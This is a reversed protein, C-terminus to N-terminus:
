RFSNSLLYERLNKSYRTSTNMGYGRRLIAEAPNVCLNPRRQLLSSTVCHLWWFSIYQGASGGILSPGCWRLAFAGSLAARARVPATGNTQFDDNRGVVFGAPQLSREAVRNMEKFALGPIEPEHQDIVAAGIVGTVHDASYGTRVVPDGDRENTANAGTLAGGDSYAQQTPRVCAGPGNIGVQGDGKFREGSGQLMEVLVAARDYCGPVRGTRQEDPMLLTSSPEATCCEPDDGTGHHLTHAVYLAAEFKKVPPYGRPRHHTGSRLTRRRRRVAAGGGFSPQLIM